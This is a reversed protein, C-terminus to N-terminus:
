QRGPVVIAGQGGQDQIARVSEASADRSRRNFGSVMGTPVEAVQGTINLGARVEIRVAVGGGRFQQAAVSEARVKKDGASVVITRDGRASQSIFQVVYNGPPVKGTAFTGDGNTKGKYVVKGSAESVLVDISSPAGLVVPAFAFLFVSLIKWPLHKM